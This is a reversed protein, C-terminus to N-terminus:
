NRKRRKTIHKLEAPLRAQNSFSAVPLPFMGERCVGLGKFEVPRTSAGESGKRVRLLYAVLPDLRRFM